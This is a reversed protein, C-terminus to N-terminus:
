LWASETFEIWANATAGAIATVVKITLGNATGAPVILPKMLPSPSWSWETDDGGGTPPTQRWVLNAQFLRTSETGKATTLSRATAGSSGDGNDDKAPTIATGGTGATTLRWVEIAGAAASTAGTAQQIVIRRIRLNLSAGAMLELVHSNATACSVNLALATYSALYYEGPIFLGEDAAHIAGAATSIFRNYAHGRGGDGPTYIIITEGVGVGAALTQFATGSTSWHFTSDGTGTVGAAVVGTGSTSWHFTSDGTGTVGTPSQAISAPFAFQLDCPSPAYIDQWSSGGNTTYQGSGDSFSLSSHFGQDTGARITTATYTSTGACSLKLRYSQGNTLTRPSAFNITSSWTQGGTDGGPATIPISAAAISATDISVGAATELTAILPDTGSSRRVRVKVGTVTRDGGSVTFQQGAMNNTGSITAYLGPIVGQIYGFGDHGGNLYTVDFVPTFGSQLVWQGGTFWLEALDTDPYLPQRPVLTSGYVFLENVSIYNSAPAADINTYVVHYITGATTPVAPTIGFNTYTTNAGGGGPSYTFSGLYTGSPVGNNDAQIGIRYQGGTGASYGGTGWRQSFRVAVISSNQSSRFRQASRVSDSPGVHVNYKTDANASGYVTPVSTGQGGGTVTGTGSVSWHFTSGGTGPGGTASGKLVVIVEDWNVSSGLTWGTSQATAASQILYGTALRRTGTWNYAALGTFGGTPGSSVTTNGIMSAIVINDNTTPTVPGASPSASVGDAPSSVDIPAADLGALELYQVGSNTTGGFTVTLATTGASVGTGIWIKDLNHANNSNAAQSYTGSGGTIGTVSANDAAISLVLTTGATTATVTVACTTTTGTGASAGSAVVTVAM